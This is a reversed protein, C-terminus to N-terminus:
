QGFVRCTDWRVSLEHFQDGDLGRFTVFGPPTSFNYDRCTFCSKGSPLGHIVVDFPTIPDQLKAVQVEIM